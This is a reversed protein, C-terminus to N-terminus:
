LEIGDMEEGIWQYFRPHRAGHTINVSDVSGGLRLVNANKGHTAKKWASGPYPFLDFCISNEPRDRKLEVRSYDSGSFGYRSNGDAEIRNITFIIYSGTAPPRSSLEADEPCGFYEGRIQGIMRGYKGAPKPGFYGGWILAPGWINLWNGFDSVSGTEANRVRCPIFNRNDNAYLTAATGIAKLRAQCTVAKGKAAAAQAASVSLTMLVAMSAAILGAEIMTFKKWHIKKM